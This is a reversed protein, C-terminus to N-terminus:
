VDSAEEMTSSPGTTKAAAKLRRALFRSNIFAFFTAVFIIPLSAVVVQDPQVEYGLGELTGVILLM